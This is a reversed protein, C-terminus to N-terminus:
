SVLNVEGMAASTDPMAGGGCRCAALESNWHMRGTATGAQAAHRGVLGAAPEVM